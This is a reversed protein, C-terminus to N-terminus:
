SVRTSVVGTAPDLTSAMRAEIEPLSLADRNLVPLNTGRTRRASPALFGDLSTSTAEAGLQQCFRYDESILEPYQEKCPRLDKTTGAFDCSYRAFHLTRPRSLPAEFREPLWHEFEATATEVEPSSYFVGFSGDSFRTARRKLRSRIRFPGDRVSRLLASAGHSGVLEEM